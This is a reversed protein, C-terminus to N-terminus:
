ILRLLEFPVGNQYFRLEVRWNLGSLDRFPADYPCVVYVDEWSRKKICKVFDKLKANTSQVYTKRSFEKPLATIIMARGEVAQIADSAKAKCIHIECPLSSSDSSIERPLSQTFNEFNKEAKEINEDSGLIKLNEAGHSPTMSIDEIAFKYAEPQHTPYYSFPYEISPSGAPIGSIIGAAEFLFGGSGCFPDWLTLKKKIRETLKTQQIIGCIIQESFDNENKLKRARVNIGGDGCASVELENGQISVWVSPTKHNSESVKEYEPDNLRNHNARSRKAIILDSVLKEVHKDHFLRSDSCSARVIPLDAELPLYERWPANNLLEELHREWQCFIPELIRTRVGTSLRSLLTTQWLPLSASGFDGRIAASSSLVVGRGPLLFPKATPALKKLEELLLRELGPATSVVFNRVTM